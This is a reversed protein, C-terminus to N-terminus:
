RALTRPGLMEAIFVEVVDVVAADKVDGVFIAPRAGAQEVRRALDGLAAADQGVLVVVTSGARLADDVATATPEVLTVTTDSM